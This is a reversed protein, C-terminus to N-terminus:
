DLGMWPPLGWLWSCSRGQSNKKEYLDCNIGRVYKVKVNTDQLVTFNEKTKITLFIKM